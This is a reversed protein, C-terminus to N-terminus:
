IKFNQSQPIISLIEIIEESKMYYIFRYKEFIIERIREEESEPVIRGSYPYKIIQNEISIIKNYFRKAFNISVNELYTFIRNFDAEAELTWLNTIM